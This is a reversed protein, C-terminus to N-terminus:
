TQSNRRRASIKEFQIWRKTSCPFFNRAQERWLTLQIAGGEDALVINIVNSSSTEGTTGNSVDVRRVGEEAGMLYGNVHVMAGVKATAHLGAIKVEEPEVSQKKQRKMPSAIVAQFGAPLRPPSAARQAIM